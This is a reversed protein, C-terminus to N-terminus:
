KIKWRYYLLTGVFVHALFLNVATLTWFVKNDIFSSAVQATVLAVAVIAYTLQASKHTILAFREDTEEIYAKKRAADNRILVLLRVANTVLFLNIILAMGAVCAMGTFPLSTFWSAQTLYGAILAALLVTVCGALALCRAFRRKVKAKYSDMM